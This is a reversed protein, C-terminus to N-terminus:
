TQPGPRGDSGRKACVNVYSLKGDCNYRSLQVLALKPAASRSVNINALKQSFFGKNLKIVHAGM